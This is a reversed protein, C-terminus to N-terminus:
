RRGLNQAAARSHREDDSAVELVLAGCQAEIAKSASCRTATFCKGGSITIERRLWRSAWLSTIRWLIGVETTARHVSEKASGPHATKRWCRRRPGALIRSLIKPCTTSGRGRFWPGHGICYTRGNCRAKSSAEVSRYLKRQAGLLSRDMTPTGELIPNPIKDILVPNMGSQGLRRAARGDPKTPAIRVTAAGADVRNTTLPVDNVAAGPWRSRRVTAASFYGVLFQGSSIGPTNHLV